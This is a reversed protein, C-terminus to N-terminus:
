PLVKRLASGRTAAELRNLALCLDLPLYSRDFSALSDAAVIADAVACALEIGALQFADEEPIGAAEAADQVDPDYLTIPKGRTRARELLSPSRQPGRKMRESFLSVPKKTRNMPM